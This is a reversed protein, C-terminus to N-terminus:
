SFIRKTFAFGYPDLFDAITRQWDIPVVKNIRIEQKWKEAMDAFERLTYEEGYENRIVAEEPLDELETLVDDFSKMCDHVAFMPRNGCSKKCIHVEFGVRPEFVADLTMGRNQLIEAADASRTFISYNTGM